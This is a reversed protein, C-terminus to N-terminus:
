RRNKDNGQGAWGPRGTEDRLVVSQGRSVNTMESVKFEGDEDFGVLTIRDGVKPAFGVQVAFAWPRGEVEIMQGDKTQVILLDGAVNAVTGEITVWEISLGGAAQGVGLNGGQNTESTRGGRGNAGQGQRGGDLQGEGGLNGGVSQTVNGHRGGNGGSVGDSARANTRIVAGVILIAILGVALIGLILKKAM